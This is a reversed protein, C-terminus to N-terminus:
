LSTAGRSRRGIAAGAALMVLALGIALWNGWLVFPTAGARPQLEVVLGARQFLPISGLIAGHHDIVASVGTNTSRILPRGTELARMRAIELHQWPALSDGFWADNSVNILYAAQPLARIVEEPYVDEYCISAGVPLGGVPLLSDGARGASFNSMPVEFLKVLPGLLGKFPMFEGFPVLHRKAYLGEEGGLSLLGNYYRGDTERYPIGLVMAVGEERATQTMPDILGERMEDLFAPVATEPWVIVNADLHERTLELHAQLVPILAEPDWKMSPQINAQILAAKLPSGSPVTWEMMRLAGGAAWLALLGALALWRTRGHRALALWALGGSLSVALSVGYVGLLPALGGLPSDIQTYGIALWPFGTFLWGRLWEFLVWAGPLVLLPGAAGEGALHRVAWGALAYYMAMTAIFVITLVQALAPPLNGFENLSIRIWWIGFGLLGMGFAWGTLLGRGPTQRLGQYFAAVALVALPFLGFPAFALVACGGAALALLVSGIWPLRSLLPPM